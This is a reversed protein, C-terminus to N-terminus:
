KTPFRCLSQVVTIRLFSYLSIDLHESTYRIGFSIWLSSPTVINAPMARMASAKHVHVDTYNSLKLVLSFVESMRLLFKPKPLKSIIQSFFMWACRPMHSPISIASNQLDLTAGFSRSMSCLCIHNITDLQQKRENRPIGLSCFMYTSMLTTNAKYKQGVRGSLFATRPWPKTCYFIPFLSFCVMM